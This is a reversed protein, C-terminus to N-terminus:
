PSTAVKQAGAWDERPGRHRVALHRQTFGVGLFVRTGSATNEARGQGCVCVAKESNDPLWLKIVRSQQSIIMALNNKRM